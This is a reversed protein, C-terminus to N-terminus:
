NESIFHHLPFSFVDVTGYKQLPYYDQLDKYMVKEFESLLEMTVYFNYRNQQAMFTTVGFSIEEEFFSINRLLGVKLTGSSMKKLVLVNGPLYLTGYIKVKKLILASNDLTTLYMRLFSDSTAGKMSHVTVSDDPIEFKTRPFMGTYAYSIQALQHREACTKAVNKFNRASKIVTKFYVHKSEMRMGWLMILPGYKRYSDPYHSLFHHKPKPNPMGLDQVASIRM